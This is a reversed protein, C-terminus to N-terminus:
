HSELLKDRNSVFYRLNFVDDYSMLNQHKRYGKLLIKTKKDFESLAEAKQELTLEQYKICDAIALVRWYDMAKMKKSLQDDHGGYKKILFDEVFGIPYKSCIKLWLDYDECVPFDERFMGVENFLDKKVLVTSPSICCLKLAQSFIQGGAKKHKKMPNVRVGNRIWIEEGHIIKIEPHKLTYEVQKELKDELWQDDSDLFAVWLGQAQGIAKNRAASVGQNSTRIIKIQPNQSYAKLIEATHDTSGDDVIILEWNKYSQALVSEVARSLVSARNYTPIIVSIKSDM